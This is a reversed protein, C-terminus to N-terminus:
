EDDNTDPRQVISDIGRFARDKKTELIKKLQYDISSGWNVEIAVIYSPELLIKKIMDNMIIKKQNM